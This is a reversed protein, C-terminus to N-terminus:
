ILFLGGAASHLEEATTRRSPSARPPGTLNLLQATQGALSGLLQRLLNASVSGASNAPTENSPRASTTTSGVTASCAATAACCWHSAAPWVRDHLRDPHDGIDPVRGGRHGPRRSAGPSCTRRRCRAIEGQSLPWIPMTHLRGTLPRPPARCPTMGPDVGTLVATGPQAGERNLVPKSRMSCRLPVDQYEDFVCPRTVRRDGLHREGSRGGQSGLITSISSPCVADRPCVRRLTTSKGVSRPGHLAIVPEVLALDALIPALRRQAMTGSLEPM